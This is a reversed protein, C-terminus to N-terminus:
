TQNVFFTYGHPICSEICGILTEYHGTAGRAKGIRLVWGKNEHVVMGCIEGTHKAFIPNYDDVNEFRITERKKEDIIIERM